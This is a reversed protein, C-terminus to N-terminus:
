ELGPLKFRRSPQPPRSLPKSFRVADASNTRPLTIPADIPPKRGWFAQNGYYLSKLEGKDADLEASIASRVMQDGEASYNWRFMYRPIGPLAPKQIEPEFDMHILNTPYKLKALALRILRIAESESVKWEGLFEKILIPRDPNFLNDPAHFGSVLYNEYVFRWGNTLSLECYPGGNNWEISCRAVHNTTLPRPVPLALKQAYDEVSTLIFPIIRSAYEPNVFPWNNYRADRRAEVPIKPLPRNLSRNFITLREMRKINANVDMDVSTAVGAGGPDLWQIRFHPVTNTGVKFPEAIRPEQEAFVTELPIGLKKITTRAFEVAEAKSMKVEGFHEALKHFDQITFVEGPGQVTSVYGREFVFYWGGDLGVLVGWNRTPKISCHTVQEITVPQPVPLELKHAVDSIYPMVAVLVANSYEATIRVVDFASNSLEIIM